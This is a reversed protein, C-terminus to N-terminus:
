HAAAIGKDKGPPFILPEHRGSIIAGKGPQRDRAVGVPTRNDLVRDSFSDEVVGGASIEFQGISRSIKVLTLGLHEHVVVCMKDSTREHLPDLYGCAYPGVYVVGRNSYIACIREQSRVVLARRVFKNIRGFVRLDQSESKRCGAIHNRKQMVVSRRLIWQTARNLVDDSM